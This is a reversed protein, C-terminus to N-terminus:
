ANQRFQFISASSQNLSNRIGLKEEPTLTGDSLGAGIQNTLALRQAVLQANENADLQGSKVGAQIRQNQFAVRKAQVPAGNASLLGVNPPIPM